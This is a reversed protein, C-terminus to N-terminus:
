RSHTAQETRTPSRQPQPLDVSPSPWAAAHGSDVGRYRCRQPCARSSRERASTPFDGGAVDHVLRLRRADFRDIDVSPDLPRDTGYGDLGTTLIQDAVSM